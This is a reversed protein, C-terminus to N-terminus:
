KPIVITFSDGIENRSDEVLVNEEIHSQVRYLSFKIDEIDNLLEEVTVDSYNPSFSLNIENNIYNTQLFVIKRGKRDIGELRLDGKYEVAPYRTSIKATQMIPNIKLSNIVTNDSKPIEFNEIVKKTKTPLKDKPVVLNYSFEKFTKDYSIQKKAFHIELELDRNVDVPKEIEYSYIYKVVEPNEVLEMALMEGNKVDIKNGNIKIYDANRINKEFYNDNKPMLLLFYINEDDMAFDEFVAVYNGMQITENIKIVYDKSEESILSNEFLSVKINEAFNVVEARVKPNMIGLIILFAAAISAFKFLGKKKRANSKVLQNLKAKESENLEAIGYQVNLDNLKDYINNM